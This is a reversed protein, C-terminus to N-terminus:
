GSVFRKWFNPSGDRGSLEPIYGSRRSSRLKDPNSFDIVRLKPKGAQAQEQQVLSDPYFIYHDSIAIEQANYDMKLFSMLRPDAPESIDLVRLSRIDDSGERNPSTNVTTGILLDDIILVNSWSRPLAVQNVENLQQSNSLNVVTLGRNVDAQYIFDGEVAQKWVTRLPDGDFFTPQETVLYFPEPPELSILGLGLFDRTVYVISDQMNLDFATGSLEAVFKAILKPADPMKLSFFVAGENQNAIMLTEGAVALGRKGPVGQNFLLIDKSNVLQPDHPRRVDYTLLGQAYDTVYVMNGSKTIGDAMASARDAVKVPATPDSIDVVWLGGSGASIYAYEGDIVLDTSLQPLDLQGILQVESPDTLDYITLKGSIDVLFLNPEQYALGVASIKLSDSNFHFRISQTASIQM